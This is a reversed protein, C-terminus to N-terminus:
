AQGHRQLLAVYFCRRPWGVSLRFWGISRVQIKGRAAREFICARLLIFPTAIVFVAPAAAVVFLRRLVAVVFGRLLWDLM